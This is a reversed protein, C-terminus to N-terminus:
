KKISKWFVPESIIKISSGKEQLEKAKKIKNGFKTCAWSDSGEDALILYNVDKTLRDKAIGGADEIIQMIEMRTKGSSSKGTFVCIKDTIDVFNDNDYFTKPIDSDSSSSTKQNPLNASCEIDVFKKLYEKLENLNDQTFRGNKLVEKLVRNIESYPYCGDLDANNSLWKKLVDIEKKNLTDDAIIGYCFGELNQLKSNESSYFVDSESIEQAITKLINIENEDVINDELIKHLINSIEEYAHKNTKSTKEHTIMWNKLELVEEKNVKEDAIIGEILGKLIFIHKDCYQKKNLKYM